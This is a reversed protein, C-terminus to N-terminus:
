NVTVVESLSGILDSTGGEVVVSGEAVTTGDDVVGLWGTRLVLTNSPLEAWNPGSM